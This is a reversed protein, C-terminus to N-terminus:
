GETAGEAAEDGSEATAHLDGTRAIARLLSDARSTVPNRRAPDHDRAALEVLAFLDAARAADLDAGSAELVARQFAPHRDFRLLNGTDTVPSGSHAFEWDLVAVVALTSPDVLLNKPNFDSHVFCSRTIADLLDQAHDAVAVLGAREDDSWRELDALHADVWGPLGDALGPFPEIALDPATFTGARLTPVHALRDLVAGLNRGLRDLGDPDLTPLVVDAREGVVYETILLGPHDSTARRLELVEPVPVIGRMLHLVAADVDVAGPRAASRGAYIRVIAKQGQFDSVFTEGSYGGPVPTMSTV